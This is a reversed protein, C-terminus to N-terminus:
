NRGRGDAEGVSHEGRGRVTAQVRGGAGRVIARVQHGQVAAQWAVENGLFGHAGTVGIRLAAAGPAGAVLLVLLLGAAM